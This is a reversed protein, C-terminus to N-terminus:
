HRLSYVPLACREKFHLCKNNKINKFINHIINLCMVLDNHACFDLFGPANFHMSPLALLHLSNRLNLDMKIMVAQSGSHCFKALNITKHM